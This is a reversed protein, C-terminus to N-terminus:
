KLGEVLKLLDAPNRAEVAVRVVSSVSFKIMYTNHAHEFTTITGSKVLFKDM